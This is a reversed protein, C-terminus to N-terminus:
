RSAKRRKAIGIAAASGAAALLLAALVFYIYAHDTKADKEQVNRLEATQSAEETVAPEPSTDEGYSRLNESFFKNIEIINDTSSCKCAIDSGGASGDTQFWTEGPHEKQWEEKEKMRDNYDKEFKKAIRLLEDETLVRDVQDVSYNSATRGVPIFYEVGDKQVYFCWGAGAMSFFRVDEPPILEDSHLMSAIRFAHDAYSCSAPYSTQAFLGEAILTDEFAESYTFSLFHAEGDEVYFVMNGAFENDDNVTKVIYMQQQFPKAEEWLRPILEAKGSSAFALPDIIYIPTISEKVAWTQVGMFELQPLFDENQICAYIYEQEENSAYVSGNSAGYAPAATLLLIAFVLLVAVKKGKM